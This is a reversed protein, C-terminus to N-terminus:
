STRTGADARIETQSCRRGHFARDHDARARVAEGRRDRQRAGPQLDLNVLGLLLEAAAQTRGLQRQRAENVVDARRNVREPQSRREETRQLEVDVPDLRVRRRSMRQVVPGRHQELVAQDRGRGAEAVVLPRIPPQDAREDIRPVRDLAHLEPRMRDGGLRQKPKAVAEARAAEHLRKPGRHGRGSRQGLAPEAVLPRPRPEGPM